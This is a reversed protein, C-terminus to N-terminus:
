NKARKGIWGEMGGRERGGERKGRERGREKRGGGEGHVYVYGCMCMCWTSYTGSAASIASLLALFFSSSNVLDAGGTTSAALGEPEGLKLCVVLEPKRDTIPLAKPFTAPLILAPVCM